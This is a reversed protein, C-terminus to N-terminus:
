FVIRCGLNPRFESPLEDIQPLRSFVGSMESENVDIWACLERDKRLTSFSYVIREQKQKSEKVSITDGLKVNYSPIDVVCSNVCIARHSVLQRAEARTSALGLRFVVNDLRSELLFLLNSGTPGSINSAKDYYKRFQKESKVNYYFRILQKMHLQEAYDSKTSRRSGPDKGPAIVMRDRCKGDASRITLDIDVGLRRCKKLRNKKMAM